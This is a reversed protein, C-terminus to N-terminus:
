NELDGKTISCTPLVSNKLIVNATSTKLWTFNDIKDRSCAIWFINIEDRSVIAQVIIMNRMVKSLKKM